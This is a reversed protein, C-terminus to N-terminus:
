DKFIKLIKNNLKFIQNVIYNKFLRLFIYM